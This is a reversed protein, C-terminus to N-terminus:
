DIQFTCLFYLNLSLQLCLGLNSKIIEWHTSILTGHLPFVLDAVRLCHRSECGDSRSFILVFHFGHKCTTIFYSYVAYIEIKVLRQQEAKNRVDICFAMDSINPPASVRPWPQRGCLNTDTSVFSSFESSERRNKATM